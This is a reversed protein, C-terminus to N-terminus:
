ASTVRRRRARLHQHLRGGAARASALAPLRRNRCRRLSCPFRASRGAPGGRRGRLADRLLAHLTARGPHRTIMSFGLAGVALPPLHVFDAWARLAQAGSEERASILVLMLGQTPGESLFGQAPRPYHLFHLGRLGESLEPAQFKKEAEFVALTRFDQVRFVFDPEFDKRQYHLNRFLTMRTVGPLAMVEPTRSAHYREPEADSMELYLVPNIRDEM